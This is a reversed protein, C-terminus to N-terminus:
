STEQTKPVINTKKFEHNRVINQAFTIFNYPIYYLNKRKVM